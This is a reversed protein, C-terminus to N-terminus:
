VAKNEMRRYNVLVAADGFNGYEIEINNEDIQKVICNNPPWQIIVGNCSVM